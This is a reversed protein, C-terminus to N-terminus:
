ITEVIIKEKEENVEKLATMTIQYKENERELLENLRENEAKAKQLEDVTNQHEKNLLQMTDEKKLLVAELKEVIQLTKERMTAARNVEDQELEKGELWKDVSHMVGLLKYYLDDNEAKQRNILDLANKKLEKHCDWSNQLPCEYCDIDNDVSCCELAKVVKLENDTM